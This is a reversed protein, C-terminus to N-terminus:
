VYHLSPMRGGYDGYEPYTTEARAGTQVLRAVDGQLTEPLQDPYIRKYPKGDRDVLFKEFNWRIDSSDFSDYFLREKERFGSVATPCVSAM